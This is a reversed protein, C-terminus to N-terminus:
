FNNSMNVIDFPKEMLSAYIFKLILNGLNHNRYIDQPSYKPVLPILIPLLSPELILFKM